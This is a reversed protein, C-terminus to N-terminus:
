SSEFIRAVVDTLPPSVARVPCRAAPRKKSLRLSAAAPDPLPALEATRAARVLSGVLMSTTM